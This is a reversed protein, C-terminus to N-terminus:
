GREVRSIFDRVVSLYRETEELHPMHASHEYVVFESGPTLSHFWETTRPTAEDVRGCSYLVPVDIEGLRGSSDYDKLNGTVYFENPGWMTQYEVHGRGQRARVMNDPLPDLRMVHRRNFEETAEKYEASDITGEREHRELTDRVNAPLQARYEDCDEVWRPISICPSSMVISEVGDPKTLYYELALMTGWSHGLIHVRDLGLASRLLALEEVFRVVRWLSTDDPRDSKGCGLQDYFVVPREDSLAALPEFSHHTGGPGGHLTLLPITDSDGVVQYWVRGGAVDVYGERTQGPTESM